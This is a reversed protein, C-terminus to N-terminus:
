PPDYKEECNLSPVNTERGEASFDAEVLQQPPPAFGRGVRCKRMLNRGDVTTADAGRPGEAGMARSKKDGGTPFPYGDADDDRNWRASADIKKKSDQRVVDGACL